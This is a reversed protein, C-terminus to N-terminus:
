PLVVITVTRRGWTIAEATTDFCLDIRKGRIAGGTDCAVGYGYGPIWLRTGLPIVRPDVAIAGRGARDGTATVWDVGADGPAYGTATVVVRAGGVPAPPLAYRKVGRESALLLRGARDPGVAVVEDVPPCVVREAALVRRGEEGSTVLVRFVRVLRGPTGEKVVRRQGPALDDDSITVVGYPVPAAEDVLRLFVDDATIRIGPYLKECVDPRVELGSSPDLGAAVLADAVTAGVVNLDVERGGFDLSVPIAHRVVVTMGDRVPSDTSPVVVDGDGHIVGADRLVAAVDAARTSVYRTEGDCVVTVGKDVWAFGTVCALAFTAAVAAAIVAAVAHGTTRSRVPGAPLMRM